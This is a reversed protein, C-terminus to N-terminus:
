RVRRRARKVKGGGARGRRAAALGLEAWPLLAEAQDLAGDPAQRYSMAFRKGRRAYTFAQSGAAAFRHETEADVKFYLREDAVLAFMLDNLFIGWGGFMARARVPGLPVLRALARDVFQSGTSM